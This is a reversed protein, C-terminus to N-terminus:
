DEERPNLEAPYWLKRQVWKFGEHKTIAAVDVPGGVTPPGPTFRSFMITAEALFKALDIADKIPMPSYLWPKALRSKIVDIVRPIQDGPVQLETLVDSLRTGYGFILRNIVEQEGAWTIGTDDKPRVLKPEQCDGKEINVEWEEALDEGPSYGAVIFGVYLNPHNQRLEPTYKEEFFFKRVLKAVQEMSYAEPNLSYDAWNPEKGMLRRRLDKALTSISAYGISGAGWTVFGIPLGKYLNFIKRATNFINVVSTKGDPTPAALTSASDAALVVGDHVKLSIAITM